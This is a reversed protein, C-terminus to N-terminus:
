FQRMLCNSISLHFLANWFCLLFWYQPRPYNSYYWWQNQSMQYSHRYIMWRDSDLHLYMTTLLKSLASCAACINQQRLAEELAWFAAISRRVSVSQMFAETFFIHWTIKKCKPARAHTLAASSAPCLSSNGNAFRDHKLSSSPSQSFSSTRISMAPFLCYWRLWLYLFYLIKLSLPM